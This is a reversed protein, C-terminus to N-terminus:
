LDQEVCHVFKGLWFWCSGRIVAMYFQGLQLKSALSTRSSGSGRERDRMGTGDDWDTINEGGERWEDMEGGSEGM